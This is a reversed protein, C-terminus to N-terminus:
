RRLAKARRVLDVFERRHPDDGASAEALALTSAFTAKGAHPSGRLLMGFSAVAAAFTFDGSMSGLSAERRPLVETLLRSESGEPEKYRLKVTLIEGPKGHWREASPAPPQYKLADVSPAPV